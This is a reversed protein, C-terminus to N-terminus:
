LDRMRGIFEVVEDYKKEGILRGLEIGNNSVVLVPLINGVNYQKIEDEDIDLDYNVFEMDSFENEIDKWYKNMIICAPCWMASIKVIRM